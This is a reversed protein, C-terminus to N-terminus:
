KRILAGPMKRRKPNEPAIGLSVSPVVTAPGQIGTGPPYYVPHPTFTNSPPKGQPDTAFIQFLGIQGPPNRNEAQEANVFPSDLSLYPNSGIRAYDGEALCVQGCRDQSNDLYWNSSPNGSAPPPIYAPWVNYDGTVGLVGGSAPFYITQHFLPLSRASTSSYCLYSLWVGGNPDVNVGNMFEDDTAPNIIMCGSSSNYTGTCVAVNNYGNSNVQFTVAWKGSGNGSADILPAYYLYAGPVRYPNSNPNPGVAYADPSNNLPVNNPFPMLLTPASWSGNSEFFYSVAQPLFQFSFPQLSPTFVMFHDGAGVVRSNIGWRQDGGTPTAVEYPQSWSTGGDTSTSVWYGDAHYTQLNDFYKVAGVIIRGTSDVAVSGYDFAGGQGPGSLVEQLPAWNVGDSSTSFYLSSSTEEFSTAVLVYRSRGPTSDYALYVDGVQKGGPGAIVDSKAWTGNSPIWAATYSWLTTLTAFSHVWTAGVATSPEWWNYGAGAVDSPIFTTIYQNNIAFGVSAVGALILVNKWSFVRM